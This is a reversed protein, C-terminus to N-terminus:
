PAPLATCAEKIQDYCGQAKELSIAEEGAFRLSISPTVTRDTFRCIPTAPGAYAYQGPNRIMAVSDSITCAGSNIANATLAAFEDATWCPCETKICPMDLDGPQMKKRYNQLIKNNPTEKDGIEDLDQAECYAVCLGYLGPTGGHLVDCVGENAPTLDDAIAENSSLGVMAVVSAACFLSLFRKYFVM